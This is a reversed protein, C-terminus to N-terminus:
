EYVTRVSQYQIYNKSLHMIDQQEFNFLDKARQFFSQKAQTTMLHHYMAYFQSLGELKQPSKKASLADDREGCYWTATCTNTYAINIKNLSLLRIALDRDNTSVLGDTFKGAKILTSTKVFTNTGQWGPNGILFDDLIIKNIPTNTITNGRIVTRLGSLVIDAFKSQIAVSQCTSLHNEDWADDDDLIATYSYPWKAYIYDIGTNWTSAVGPKGENELFVVLTPHMLKIIQQQQVLTLPSKDTVLVLLNPRLKQSCISPLSRNMLLNFRPTTAILAILEKTSNM